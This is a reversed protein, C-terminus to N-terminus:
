VSNLRALRDQDSEHVMLYITSLNIYVVIGQGLRLYKKYWSVTLAHDVDVMALVSRIQKKTTARRLNCGRDRCNRQHLGNGHAQADPGKDQGELSSVLGPVLRVSPLQHRLWRRGLEWGLLHVMRQVTSFRLRIFSSLVFTFSVFCVILTSACAYYAAYPQLKSAFPLKSRDFGQAKFGKYFRLYTFSIGFWTMLGAIATM